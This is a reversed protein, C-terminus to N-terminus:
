MRPWGAHIVGVPEAVGEATGEVGVQKVARNVLEALRLRDAPAAGDELRAQPGGHEILVTQRGSVAVPDTAAEQGACPAAQCADESRPYPNAGVCSGIRVGRHAM